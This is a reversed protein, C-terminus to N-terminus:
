YLMTIEKHFFRSPGDHELDIWLYGNEDACKIIGNQRQNDIQFCSIRDKRFLIENYRFLIEDATPPNLINDSYFTFFDEALNKLDYKVGTQSYLSGANPLTSFNEGTVNIGIGTILCKEGQIKKKEILIGAIKKENLILDNPWKTAVRQKTLNAVFDHLLVATYYNFLSDALTIMKPHHAFSIAINQNKAEQWKNGYQGKGKTQNFTCLGTIGINLPDFYDEISDNTSECESIFFLRNM